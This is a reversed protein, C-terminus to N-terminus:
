GTLLWGDRAPNVTGDYGRRKQCDVIGGEVHQWGDGDPVCLEVTTARTVPPELPKQTPRERDRLHRELSQVEPM